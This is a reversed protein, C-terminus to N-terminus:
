AEINYDAELKRIEARWEARQAMIEPKEKDYSPLDIYDTDRLLKLLEALRTKAQEKELKAQDIKIISM